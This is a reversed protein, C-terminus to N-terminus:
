LVLSNKGTTDRSCPAVAIKYKGGENKFLGKVRQSQYVKSPLLLNCSQIRLVVSWRHPAHSDTCHLHERHNKLIVCFIQTPCREQSCSDLFCAPSKKLHMRQRVPRVTLVTSM